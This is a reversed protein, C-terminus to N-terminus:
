PLVHLERTACGMPPPHGTRPARRKCQASPCAFKMNLATLGSITRPKASPWLAPNHVHKHLMRFTTHDVSIALIHGRHRQRQTAQSQPVCHPGARWSEPGAPRVANGHNPCPMRIHSCEDKTRHSVGCAVWEPTLEPLPVDTPQHPLTRAGKMPLRPSHDVCEAVLVLLIQVQLTDGRNAARLPKALPADVCLVASAEDGAVHSPLTASGFHVEPPLAMTWWAKCSGSGSQNGVRGHARRAAGENVVERRQVDTGTHGDGQRKHGGGCRM